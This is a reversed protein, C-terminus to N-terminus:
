IVMEPMNETHFDWHFTGFLYIYYGAADACQDSRLDARQYQANYEQSISLSRCLLLSSVISVTLKNWRFSTIFAKM